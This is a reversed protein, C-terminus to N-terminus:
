ANGMSVNVPLDFIHTPKKEFPGDLLVQHTMSTSATLNARSLCLIISRVNMNGNNLPLRLTFTRNLSGAVYAAATSGTFNNEAVHGPPLSSASPDIFSADAAVKSIANGSSSVRPWPAPGIDRYVANTGTSVSWYGSYNMAIPRIEYDFNTPTGDINITLTGTAGEIAYFVFEWVVELFEDSLVTISTPNGLEDTVRARNILPRNSAPSEATSGSGSYLGVESVNGVVAGEAGRIRYGLTVSRPSVTSNIVHWSDQFSNGGGLYSQLATDTVAPMSTGAGALFGKVYAGTGDFLRDFYGNVVVNPCWPTERMIIDGKMARLKFRGKVRTGVKVPNIINDFIRKQADTMNDHSM